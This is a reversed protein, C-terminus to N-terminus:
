VELFKTQEGDKVTLNQTPLFGAPVKCGEENAIATDLAAQMSFNIRYLELVVQRVITASHVISKLIDYNGDMLQVLNHLSERCLLEESTFLRPEGAEERMAIKLNDFQLTTFNTESHCLKIILSDVNHNLNREWENM